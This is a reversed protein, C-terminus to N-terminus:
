SIMRRVAPVAAEKRARPVVVAAAVAAVMLGRRATRILLAELAQAQAVAATAGMQEPLLLHCMAEVAGARAPEEGVPRARGLVPPNVAPLDSEELAVPAAAAWLQARLLRHDAAGLGETLTAQQVREAREVLLRRQRAPAARAVVLEPM